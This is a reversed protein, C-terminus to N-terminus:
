SCLSRRYPNSALISIGFSGHPRAGCRDAKLERVYKWDLHSCVADAAQRDPLHDMFQFVTVLALCWPAEASQGRVPCLDAFQEDSHITGLADRMQMLVHGRSFAAGGTSQADVPHLANGSM